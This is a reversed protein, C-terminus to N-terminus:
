VTMMYSYRFCVILLSVLTFHFVHGLMLRQSVAPSTNCSDSDPSTIIQLRGDTTAYVPSNREFYVKALDTDKVDCTEIKNSPVDSFNHKDGGMAIYDTMAVRYTRQPDLPQWEPLDCSNCLIEISRVRQFPPQTVDAVIRAGSAHLFGGYSVLRRIDYRHLGTEFMKKVQVGTLPLICIPNAFPYVTVIDGFTVNGKSISGRIGGGNVVAMDIPNWKKTNQSSSNYNALIFHQMVADALLNSLACESFRCDEKDGSLVVLSYGVYVNAEANIVARKQELFKEVKPDKDISSDLLLPANGQWSRVQGTALDFTVNIYGLYKGLWFDQVVLARTKDKRTVVTPYPGKVPDNTGQDVSSLYTHSHGGVVVSVLPVKEAIEQDKVYGSHGTVIIISVNQKRLKEAEHSICEIEDTFKIDKGPNSLFVTDPTIFGIVGIKVGSRELVISPRPQYAKLLRDNSFDINCGLIPTSINAARKLLPLVGASGDDFEHNGLTMADHRIIEITDAIIEGKLMYFWMTGQYYDGANLFITNPNNNRIEDVMFKQRAIGGYCQNQTEDLNCRSGKADFEDIRAHVDNTHLITLTFEKAAVTKLIAASLVLVLSLQSVDRSLGSM